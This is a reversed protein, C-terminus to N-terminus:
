RFDSLKSFGSCVPGLLCLACEIKSEGPAAAAYNVITTAAKLQAYQKLGFMAVSKADDNYDEHDSDWILIGDNEILRHHMNAQGQWRWICAALSCKLQILENTTAVKNLAETRGAISKVFYEASLNSGQKCLMPPIYLAEAPGAEASQRLQDLIAKILSNSCFPDPLKASRHKAAVCQLKVAMSSASCGLTGAEQSIFLQVQLAAAEQEAATDTFFFVPSCSKLCCERWADWARETLRDSDESNGIQQDTQKCTKKKFFSSM